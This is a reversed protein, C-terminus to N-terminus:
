SLDRMGYEPLQEALAEAYRYNADKTRGANHPTHVVNHRGLLPDNQPLPEIDFVDAALSLEDALLRRRLESFDLIAGRTVLVVLCGKPLARIHEATILGESSPTHPVMPAFIDADQVLYDLSFAKRAGARHFAPEPSSRDWAAVDAGLMHVFSAYRSAINGAGVIRVRKGEITGNVFNPDDCFQQFPWEWIGPSIIMEHHAQPIRRLGDITLGLAFEAVSQGWYGESRHQLQRIGRAQLLAAIEDDPQIGWATVFAERLLPLAQLDHGRLRLGLSILRAVSEPNQIVDALAGDNDAFLRQFTLATRPELLERMRDAAFPWIRDFSPHVVITTNM